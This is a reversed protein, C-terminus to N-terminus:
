AARQLNAQVREHTWKIAPPFVFAFWLLLFTPLYDKLTPARELESAHISRSAFWLVYFNVFMSFLHLPTVITPPSGDVSVVFPFCGAYIVAIPLMAIALRPATNLSSASVANSAIGICLLWGFYLGELLVLAFAFPLIRAISFPQSGRFLFFIALFYVVIVCIMVAMIRSGRVRLVAQPVRTM